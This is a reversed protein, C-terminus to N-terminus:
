NRSRVGAAGVTAVRCEARPGAEVFGHRELRTREAPDDSLAAEVVSCGKNRASRLLEELLADTVRDADHDPDVVILDVAGVFGGARVSPRLALVAGGVVERRAEAIFISAQPLYVLQRLLDGSDMSGAAGPSRVSGGSLAVLREIDTIRAPRILYEM